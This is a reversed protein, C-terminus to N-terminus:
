HGQRNGEMAEWSCMGGNSMLLSGFVPLLHVCAAFTSAWRTMTHTAKFLAFRFWVTTHAVVPDPSCGTLHM